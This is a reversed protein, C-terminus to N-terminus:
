THYAALVNSSKKNEAGRGEEFRLLYIKLFCSEYASDM